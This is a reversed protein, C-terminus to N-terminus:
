LDKRKELNSVRISEGGHNIVHNKIKSKLLKNIVIADLFFLPILTILILVIFPILKIFILLVTARKHPTGTGWDRYLIVEYIEDVMHYFCITFFNGQASLRFFAFSIAFFYPMMLLVLFACAKKSVDECLNKKEEQLVTDFRTDDATYQEFKYQTCKYILGKHIRGRM